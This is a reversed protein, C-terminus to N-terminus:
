RTPLSGNRSARSVSAARVMTSPAYCLTHRPTCLVVSRAPAPTVVLALTALSSGCGLRAQRRPCHAARAGPLRGRLHPFWPRRPADFTVLLAETDSSVAFIPTKGGYKKPKAYSRLHATGPERSSRSYGYSALVIPFRQTVSVDEIGLAAMMAVTRDAAPVHSDAFSRRDHIIKIDFLGAREVMPRLGALNIVEAPVNAEVASAGTTAPGQLMRLNDITAEDVRAVRLRREQEAWDAASMRTGGDPRNLETLSVSLDQQDGLWSALAAIGRQPHRQLNDYTQGSINLINLTQRTGSAAPGAGHLGPPVSTQWRPYLRWLWVAYFRTSIATGCQRCRWSSSRFSGLDDLYMHATRSCNPCKPTHLPQMTGCNHATLYRLQRMRSNCHGCRIQGSADTDGVVQDQRFWRSVRRCTINLCEFSLPFVDWSVEEPQLIIYEESNTRPNPIGVQEPLWRDLENGLEELLVKRNLDSVRPGTVHHVQAIFGKEHPFVAGPLYRFVVQTTSRQM